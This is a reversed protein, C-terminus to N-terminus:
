PAPAPAHSVKRRIAPPAASSRKLKTLSQVTPMTKFAPASARSRSGVDAAAKQGRVPVRQSVSPGPSDAADDPLSSESPASRKRPNPATPPTPTFPPRTNSPNRCPPPSSSPPGGEDGTHGVTSEPSSDRAQSLDLAAAPPREVPRGRVEGKKAAVGETPSSCIGSSDSSSGLVLVAPKRTSVTPQGLASGSFARAFSDPSLQGGPELLGATIPSVLPRPPPSTKPSAPAVDANHTAPAPDADSAVPAPRPGMSDFASLTVLFREYEENQGRAWDSTLRGGVDRVIQQM